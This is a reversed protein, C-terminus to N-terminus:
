KMGREKRKFIEKLKEISRYVRKKAAENSLGHKKAIQEYSMKKYYYEYIYISNKEDLDNLSDLLLARDM